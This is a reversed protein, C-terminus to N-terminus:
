MGFPEFVPFQATQYEAGRPSLFNGRGPDSKSRIVPTGTRAMGVSRKAIKRNTHAESNIIYELVVVSSM